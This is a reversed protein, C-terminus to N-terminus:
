AVELINSVLTQLKFFKSIVYHNCVKWTNELDIEGNIFNLSMRGRKDIDFHSYLFRLEGMSLAISAGGYQICSGWVCLSLSFIFLHFSLLPIRIHLRRDVPTVVPPEVPEQQQVKKPNQVQKSLNKYSWLV